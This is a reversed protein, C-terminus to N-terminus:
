EELYATREADRKKMEDQRKALERAQQEMKSQNEIEL